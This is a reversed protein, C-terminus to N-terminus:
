ACPIRPNSPELASQSELYEGVGFMNLMIIYQYWKGLIGSMPLLRESAYCTSGTTITVFNLGM